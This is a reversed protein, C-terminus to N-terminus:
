RSWIAEFRPDSKIEEEDPLPLIGSMSAVEEDLVDPITVKPLVMSKKIDEMALGCVYANLSKGMSKARIKMSQLLDKDIRFATQEKVSVSLM